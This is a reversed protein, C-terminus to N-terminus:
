EKAKFISSLLIMLACHDYHTIPTTMAHAPLNEINNVMDNLMSILEDRTPKTLHVIEVEEDGIDKFNEHSTKM